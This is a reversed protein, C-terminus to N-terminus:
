PPTYKLYQVCRVVELQGHHAAWMFPTMPDDTPGECWMGAGAVLLEEIVPVHGNECAKMLATVKDM